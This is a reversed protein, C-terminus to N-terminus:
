RDVICLFVGQRSLMDFSFGDFGTPHLQDVGEALFRGGYARYQDHVSQVGRAPEARCDVDDARVVDFDFVHCDVPGTSHPQDDLPGIVNVQVAHLDGRGLVADDRRAGIGSM